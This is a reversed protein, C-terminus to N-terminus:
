FFSGAMSVAAEMAIGVRAAAQAAALVVVAAEAVVVAAAAEVVVAEVIVVPAATAPDSPDTIPSDLIAEVDEWITTIVDPVGAVSTAAWVALVLLAVMLTYGITNQGNEEIFSRRSLKM